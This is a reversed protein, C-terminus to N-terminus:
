LLARNELYKKKSDNYEDLKDKYRRYTFFFHYYISIIEYKSTKSMDPYVLSLLDHIFGIKYNFRHSSSINMAQFDDPFVFIVLGRNLKLYLDNRLDVSLSTVDEPKKIVESNNLILM